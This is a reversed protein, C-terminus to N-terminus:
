EKSIHSSSWPISVRTEGGEATSKEGRRKPGRNRIVGVRQMLPQEGLDGESVHARYIAGIDSTKEFGSM